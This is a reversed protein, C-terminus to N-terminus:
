MQKWINIENNARDQDANSEQSRDTKEPGRKPSKAIPPDIPRRRVARQGREEWEEVIVHVNTGGDAFCNIGGVRPREEWEREERCFYFPSKEVEYHKMAEEGSLFPVMRGRKLMMVVKILSAIGEACLPHGINPKISGLGCKGRRGRGYVEEMAKLELLDTVETGSGNGEVYSIEEARKGSRRLARRMVEKQAEVNPSAPGVTRGDNNSAIGQIVGYIEDGEEKAREVRKLIVVGAGEGLLVGGARGDYVHFRREKSLLGRREFLRVAVDTSMVSVGGVVAESL